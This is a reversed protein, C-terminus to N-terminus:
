GRPIEPTKMEQALPRRCRSCLNLNSAAIEDQMVRTKAAHENVLIHVVGDLLSGGQRAHARLLDIAHRFWSSAFATGRGTYAKVAEPNRLIAAELAHIDDMARLARQEEDERTM